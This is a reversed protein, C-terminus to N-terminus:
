SYYLYSNGSGHDVSYTILHTKLFIGTGDPTPYDKGFIQLTPRRGVAVQAVYPMLNCPVGAPDEGIRGSPHAGM